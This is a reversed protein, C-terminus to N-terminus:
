ALSPSSYWAAPDRYIATSRSKDLQIAPKLSKLPVYVRTVDEHVALRSVGFGGLM